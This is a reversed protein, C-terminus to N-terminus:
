KDEKLKSYDVVSALLMKNHAERLASFHNVADQSVKKESKKSEEPINVQMSQKLSAVKLTEVAKGNEFRYIHHLDFPDYRVEVVQGASVGTVKYQNSLLKVRGYKTVTRTERSYFLNSFWKLDSVRRHEKPLADIYRKHPAEGTTSHIRQNYVVDIWAWLASNLEELTTFGALAAEAQFDYKITKMVAEIKGKCWACYAPHHVKKTGLEKLVWAFQKAIYVSGNDLYVKEPIGWRLVMKKFSNEMRPLKEDRYYQAHLIKRSYDDVWGFLYTKYQGGKGDPLWIGDRADGQVLKLSYEAQFQRYIKHDKGTQLRFREKESLGNECLFRYITRNSIGAIVDAFETGSLLERIKPM